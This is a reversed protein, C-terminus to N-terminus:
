NRIAVKIRAQEREGDAEIELLAFYVGTALKGKFLNRGDWWIEHTGVDLGEVQELDQYFVLDGGADIVALQGRDAQKLVSYRFVTGNGDEASFPNPYNFAQEAILGDANDGAELLTLLLSYNSVSKTISEFSIELSDAQLAEMQMDKGPLIKETWEYRLPYYISRSYSKQGNIRLALTPEFSQMLPYSIVTDNERFLLSEHNLSDAAYIVNQKMEFHLTDLTTIQPARNKNKGFYLQLENKRSNTVAKGQADREFRTESDQLYVDLIEPKDANVVLQRIVPLASQGDQMLNISILYVGNELNLTETSNLTDLWMDLANSKRIQYSALTDAHISAWDSLKMEDNLTSKIDDIWRLDVPFEIDATEWPHLNDRSSSITISNGKGLYQGLVILESDSLTSNMLEIGGSKGQSVPNLPFRYEDVVMELHSSDFEADLIGSIMNFTFSNSDNKVASAFLPLHIEYTEPVSFEPLVGTQGELYFYNLFQNRFDLSVVGTAPFAQFLAPLSDFHAVCNALPYNAWAAESKKGLEGISINSSADNASVADLFLGKGPNWTTKLHSSDIAYEPEITTILKEDAFLWENDFRFKPQLSDPEAQLEFTLLCAIEDLGDQLITMTMASDNFSFNLDTESVGAGSVGKIKIFEPLILQPQNGKKLFRLSAFREKLFPDESLIASKWVFKKGIDSEPIITIPKMTVVPAGIVLTEESRLQYNGWRIQLKGYSSENFLRLMLASNQNELRRKLKNFRPKGLYQDQQKCQGQNQRSWEGKLSSPLELEFSDPPSLKDWSINFGSITFLTDGRLKLIYPEANDSLLFKPHATIVPIQKFVFGNNIAFSLNTEDSSEFNLSEILQYLLLSNTQSSAGTFIIGLTSSGDIHYEPLYKLGSSSASIFPLVSFSVNSSVIKLTDGPQILHWATEDQVELMPNELGTFNPNTSLIVTDAANGESMARISLESMQARGIHGTREFNVDVCTQTINEPNFLSHETKTNLWLNDIVISDLPNMTEIIDFIIHPLNVQSLTAPGSILMDASNVSQLIQNLSNPLTIKLKQGALLGPIAQQKIVIPPLILKRDGRRYTTTDQNVSIYNGIRLFNDFRRLAASQHQDCLSSDPHIMRLPMWNKQDAGTNIKWDSLTESAGQLNSTKSQFISGSEGISFNVNSMVAGNTIIIESLSLNELGTLVSMSSTIIQPNVAEISYNTPIEVGDLPIVILQAQEFSNSIRVKQNSLSTVPNDFQLITSGNEFPQSNSFRYKVGREAFQWSSLYNISIAPLKWLVESNNPDTWYVQQSTNGSNIWNAVSANSYAKVRISKLAYNRIKLFTNDSSTNIENEFDVRGGKIVISDLGTQNTLFTLTDGHIQMAQGTSGGNFYVQPFSKWILNAPKILHLEKGNLIDITEHNHIVFKHLPRSAAPDDVFYVPRFFDGETASYNVPISCSPVATSFFIQGPLNINVMNTGSNNDLDRFYLIASGAAGTSSPVQSMMLSFIAPNNKFTLNYSNYDIFSLNPDAFQYGSSTSVNLVLRYNNDFLAQSVGNIQVNATGSGPDSPLFFASADSLSINIRQMNATNLTNANGDISFKVAGTTSSSPRVTGKVLIQELDSTPGITLLNGNRVEGCNAVDSSEWSWGAPLELVISRYARFVAQDSTLIIPKIAQTTTGEPLYPIKNNEFHFDPMANTHVTGMNHWDYDEYNESLGKRYAFSIHSEGVVNPIDLNLEEISTNIGTVSSNNLRFWFGKNDLFRGSASWYQSTSNIDQSFPYSDTYFVLFYGAKFPSQNFQINFRGPNRSGDGVLFHSDDLGVQSTYLLKTENAAPYSGDNNSIYVTASLTGELLGNLAEGKFLLNELILSDNRSIWEWGPEPEIGSSFFVSLTRQDKLYGLEGLNINPVQYYRDDSLSKLLLLEENFKATINELTLTQSKNDRRSGLSDYLTFACYKTGSSRINMTAGFLDLPSQVTDPFSYRIQNDTIKICQAPLENWSLGSALTIDLRWGATRVMGSFSITIRGTAASTDNILFRTNEFQSITFSQGMATLAWFFLIFSIRKM